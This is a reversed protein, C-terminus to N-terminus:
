LSRSAQKQYPTCLYKSLLEIDGPTNQLNNWKRREGNGFNWSGGTWHTLEQLPMLKEVYQAETPILPVNRVRSIADMVHGLSIIGAGHLLRSKKPPLGWAAHFVRAVAAWFHHLVEGMSAVDAGHAREPRLFHFLVGDSLSNEIMKLVSNDKITGTPNTTTRIRGSLPSDEDLNLREMLLAPLKRRHLPSPLHADTGPLLEYILGKPLPKTSNVLIFQETQQRVDNTIFATVCVPLRHINADRIAALRQQGDVVFGPKDPDAINKELPIVLTGTRVYPLSTKGKAPEFRVRSDFALIISNPILPSPAELYARIEQIHALAEPRQYGSLENGDGRRVRSVTVFDQLLKGDVAFSYLKRGKSQHVELAPLRLEDSM